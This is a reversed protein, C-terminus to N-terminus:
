RSGVILKTKIIFTLDKIQDNTFDLHHVTNNNAHTLSNYSGAHRTNM